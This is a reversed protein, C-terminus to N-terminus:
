KGRKIVDEPFNIKKKLVELFPEFSLADRASIPDEFSIMKLLLTKLTSHEVRETILQKGQGDQTKRGNTLADVYYQRTQDSNPNYLLYAGTTMEFIVCACGFVDTNM